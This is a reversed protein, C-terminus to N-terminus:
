ESYGDPMSVDQAEGLSHLHKVLELLLIRNGLDSFHKDPIFLAPKDPYNCFADRVDLLDMEHLTVIHSLEDQFAFGAGKNIQEYNPILLITMPVQYRKTVEAMRAFLHEVEELIRPDMKRTMEKPKFFPINYQMEARVWGSLALRSNRVVEGCIVPLRPEFAIGGGPSAHVMAFSQKAFVSIDLPMLAFVIREPRLKHGLLIEIQAARVYILENRGLNFVYRNPILKRATDALMGPAHVFSSGFMAWSKPSKDSALLVEHAKFADAYDARFVEWSKYQVGYVSDSRFPGSSMADTLYPQVSRPTVIRVGIEGVTLLAGAALM